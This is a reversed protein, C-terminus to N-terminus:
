HTYMFQSVTKRCEFYENIKLIMKNDASSADFIDMILKRYWEDILVSLRNSFARIYICNFKKPM